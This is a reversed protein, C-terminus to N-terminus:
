EMEWKPIDDIFGQHRVWMTGRFGQNDFRCAQVRYLIGLKCAFANLQKTVDQVFQGLQWELEQELPRGCPGCLRDGRQRASFLLETGCRECQSLIPVRAEGAQYVQPAEMAM